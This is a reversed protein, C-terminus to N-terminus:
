GKGRSVEGVSLSAVTGDIGRVVHHQLRGGAGALGVHQHLSVEVQQPVADIGSVEAAM